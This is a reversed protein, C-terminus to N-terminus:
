TEFHGVDVHALYVPCLLTFDGPACKKGGQSGETRSGRRRCGPGPLWPATDWRRDTRIRLPFCGERPLRIGPVLTWGSVQASVWARAGTPVSPLMACLYPTPM